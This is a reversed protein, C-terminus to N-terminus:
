EGARDYIAFTTADTIDTYHESYSACCTRSAAKEHQVKTIHPETAARVIWTRRSGQRFRYEPSIRLNDFFEILAPGGM